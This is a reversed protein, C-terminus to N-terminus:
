YLWGIVRGDSITVLGSVNFCRIVDSLEEVHFFSQAENAGKPTIYVNEGDAVAETMTAETYGCFHENWHKAIKKALSKEM